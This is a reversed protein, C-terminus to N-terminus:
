ITYDNMKSMIIITQKRINKNNLKNIKLSITTLSFFFKYFNTFNKLFLFFNSNFYIFLFFLFLIM